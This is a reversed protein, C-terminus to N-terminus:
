ALFCSMGNRFDSTHNSRSEFWQDRLSLDSAKVMVDDFRTLETLQVWKKKGQSGLTSLSVSVSVSVRRTNYRTIFDMRDSKILFIVCVVSNAVLLCYLLGILGAEKGM